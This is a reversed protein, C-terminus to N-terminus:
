SLGMEEQFDALAQTLLERNVVYSYKGEQQELRILKVTVLSNLHYSITASTVGLRQAIVKTSTIGQAIALLVEYRTKDGLNKFLQVREQLANENQKKIASIFAEIELGWELYPPTSSSNIKIAYPNMRSVLFHGDDGPLLSEKVIGNSMAVLAEGGSTTLKEEFARGYAAVEARYEQYYAEFVPYLETMVQVYAEIQERPNQTFAYLHWKADSTIGLRSLWPMIDGPHRALNKTLSRLEELNRDEERNEFLALGYLLAEVLEEDKNAQVKRLYTLADEEELFTYRISILAMLSLDETMDFYFPDLREKYPLLLEQMAKAREKSAEGIFEAYSEEKASAEEEKKHHVYHPFLLFDNIYSAKEHFQFRM